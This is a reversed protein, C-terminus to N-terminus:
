LYMHAHAPAPLPKLLKRLLDPTLLLPFKLTEVLHQAHSCQIGALVHRIHEHKPRRQQAAQHLLRLTNLRLLLAELSKRLSRVGQESQSVAEVLYRAGDVPLVVQTPAFGVNAALSPLLYQAAIVVKEPPLLPLTRILYLRDLLVPSLAHEDNFSFIFVVKSLDLAVDLFADRFETNQTPDTMHILTSIIEAGQACSSVKDLEDFYLVPNSVGTEMLAQAVAGWKAHEYTFAHGRLLAADRAGGLSIQVFPRHLAEAIGRRVLTTKGNGMPGQIGIIQPVGDPHVLSQSVMHLISEKAEAHGYVHREMAQQVACLHEVRAAPSKIVQPRHACGWPLQLVAELWGQVKALEAPADALQHLKRYQQLLTAQLAVPLPAELIRYKLPLSADHAELQGEKQAYKRRKYRTLTQEYELERQLEEHMALQGAWSGGVRDRDHHAGDDPEAM